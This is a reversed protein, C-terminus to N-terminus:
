GDENEKLKKKLDLLKDWEERSIEVSIDAVGGEEIRKKMREIFPLAMERVQEAFQLFGGPTDGLVLVPVDNIKLGIEVSDTEEIYRLKINVRPSEQREM